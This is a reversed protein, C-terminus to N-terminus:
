EIVEFEIPVSPKIIPWRLLIQLRNCFYFQTVQYYATGKVMQEPIVLPPTTVTGILPDENSPHFKGRRERILEPWLNRRSDILERQSYGPCDRGSFRAQWVVSVEHGPAVQSPIIRGSYLDLPPERDFVMWAIPAIIFIAVIPPIFYYNKHLARRWHPWETHFNPETETM